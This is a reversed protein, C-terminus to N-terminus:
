LVTNNIIDLIQLAASDPSGVKQTVVYYPLNNNTLIDLAEKDKTLAEDSTQNRGETVYPIDGRDVFININDYSHYVDLLFKTFSPPYWTPTYALGLLISTDTVVFDIDRGVLRRLMNNQNALMYDQETFIGGSQHSDHSRNDWVCDKAFEHVYEVKMGQAKMHGVLFHATTSKGAGPGSLM